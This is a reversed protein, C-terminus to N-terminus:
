RRNTLHHPIVPSASLDIAHMPLVGSILTSGGRENV